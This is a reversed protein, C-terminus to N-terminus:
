GGGGIIGSRGGSLAGAALVRTAIVAVERAAAKDILQGFEQLLFGDPAQVGATPNLLNYCTQISYVDLSGGGRATETDGLATMGWFRIKGQAQLSRFADIAAKSDSVTVANRKPTRRAKVYNHLQFLDVYDRKLRKLSDELSAAIAGGVDDLESLPLLVKSGLNVDTQDNRVM